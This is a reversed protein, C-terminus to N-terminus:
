SGLGWGWGQCGRSAERDLPLRTSSECLCVKEGPHCTVLRGLFVTEESLFRCFCAGSCPRLSPEWRVAQGCARGAAGTGGLKVTQGGPHMGFGLLEERQRAVMRSLTERFGQMPRVAM